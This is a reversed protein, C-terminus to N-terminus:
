LSFAVVKDGDAVVAEVNVHADVIQPTPAVHLITSPTGVHWHGVPLFPFATLRHQPVFVRKKM